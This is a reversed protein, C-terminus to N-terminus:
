TLLSDMARRTGLLTRRQTSSLSNNIVCFRKEHGAFMVKRCNWSPLFKFINKPAKGDCTTDTAHMRKAINSIMNRDTLKVINLLKQSPDRVHIDILIDDSEIQRNFIDNKYDIDRDFILPRKNNTQRSFLLVNLLLSGPKTCGDSQKSHDIRSIKFSQQVDPLHGQITHSPQFWKQLDIKHYNLCIAPRGSRPDFWCSNFIM